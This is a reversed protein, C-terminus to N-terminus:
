IRILFILQNKTIKAIRPAQYISSELSIRSCPCTIFIDLRDRESIDAAREFEAIAPIVDSYFHTEKM